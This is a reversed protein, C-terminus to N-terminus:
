TSPPQGKHLADVYDGAKQSGTPTEWNCDGDPSQVALPSYSQPIKEEQNTEQWIVM